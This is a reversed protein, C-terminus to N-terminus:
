YNEHIDGLGEDAILERLKERVEEYIDDQVETLDSYKLKSRLHNDLDILVSRYKHGNIASRFEYEEDPLDFELRINM